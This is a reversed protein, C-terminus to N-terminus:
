AYWPAAAYQEGHRKSLADLEYPDRVPIPRRNKDLM